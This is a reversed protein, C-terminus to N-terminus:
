PIVSRRTRDKAIAIDGNYYHRSSTKYDNMTEKGNHKKPMEHRSCLLEDLLETDGYAEILCALYALKIKLFTGSKKQFPNFSMIRIYDTWDHAQVPINATTGAGFMTWSKFAVHQINPCTFLVHQPCGIVEWLNGCYRCIQVGAEVDVHCAQMMLKSYVMELLNPWTNDFWDSLYDQTINIALNKFLKHRDELDSITGAWPYKM